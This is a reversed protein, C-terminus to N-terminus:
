AQFATIRRGYMSSLTSRTTRLANAALAGYEDLRIERKRTGLKVFHMKRRVATADPM